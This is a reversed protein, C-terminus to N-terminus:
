FPPNTQKKNIKLRRFQHFNSQNNKKCFLFTAFIIGIIGGHFSMGGNWLMFVEHINNLFYSPNYIFVYGLRGGIIIGIIILLLM